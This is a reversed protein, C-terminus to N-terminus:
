VEDCIRQMNKKYLVISLIMLVIQNSVVSNGAVASCMARFADNQVSGSIFEGFVSLSIM